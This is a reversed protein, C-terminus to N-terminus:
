LEESSCVGKARVGSASPNGDCLKDRCGSAMFSGGRDAVAAAVAAVVVAAVVVAVVVVVVVAVAAHTRVPSM